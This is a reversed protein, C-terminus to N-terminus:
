HTILIIQNIYRNTVFRKLSTEHEIHIIALNKSIKARAAHSDLERIVSMLSPDYANETEHNRRKVLVDQLTLGFTMANHAAHNICYLPVLIHSSPSGEQTCGANASPNFDLTFTTNSSQNKKVQSAALEKELSEFELGLHEICSLKSSIPHTYKQQQYFGLENLVNVDVDTVKYPVLTKV